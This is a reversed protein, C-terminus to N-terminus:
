FKRFIYFFTKLIALMFSAVGLFPMVPYVSIFVCISIIGGILGVVTLMIEKMTNEFGNMAGTSDEGENSQYNSIVSNEQEEQSM